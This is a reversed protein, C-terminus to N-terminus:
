SSRTIGMGSEKALAMAAREPPPAGSVGSGGGYPVVAINHQNAYRLTAAVEETARPTVVCAPRTGFRGQHIRLLSLPWTDHAHASRAADRDDVRDAGLARALDDRVRQAEREAM